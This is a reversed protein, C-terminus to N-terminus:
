ILIDVSTGQSYLKAGEVPSIADVPQVVNLASLTGGYTIAPGDAAGAGSPPEPIAQKSRPDKGARAKAEDCSSYCVYGNVLSLSM